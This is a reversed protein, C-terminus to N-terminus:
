ETLLKGSGFKDGIRLQYLYVGPTAVAFAKEGSVIDRIVERGLCDYLMFEVEMKSKVAITKGYAWVRAQGLPDLEAIDTVTCIGAATTDELGNSDRTKIAFAYKQYLVLNPSSIAVTGSKIGVMIPLAQNAFTTLSAGQEYILWATAGPDNSYINAIATIKSGCTQTLLVAAVNYPPMAFTLVSTTDTGYANLVLVYYYATSAGNLNGVHITAISSVSTTYTYLTTPVSNNDCYLRVTTKAGGTSVNVSIDASEPLINKVSTSLIQPGASKTTFTKTNSFLLGATDLSRGGVIYTTGPNLGSITFVLNTDGLPLTVNSLFTTIGTTGYGVFCIANPDHNDYVSVYALASTATVSGISDLKIFLLSDVSITDNRIVSCGYKDKLTIVVPYSGDNTPIGSIISGALSLGPPLGTVSWTYPLTGGSGSLTDANSVGIIFSTQLPDIALTDCLVVVTDTVTGVCGFNSTAVLTFIYTGFSNVTDSVVGSTSALIAGPIFSGTM